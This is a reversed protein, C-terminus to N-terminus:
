VFFALFRTHGTPTAALLLHVRLAGAFNLLRQNPLVIEFTLGASAPIVSGLAGHLAVLGRVAPLGFGDGISAGEDFQPKTRTVVM